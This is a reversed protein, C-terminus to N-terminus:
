PVKLAKNQAIGAELKVNRIYMQTELEVMDIISVPTGSHKATEEQLKADLTLRASDRLRLFYVLGVALFAASSPPVAADADVCVGFM